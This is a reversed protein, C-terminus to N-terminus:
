DPVAKKAALHEWDHLFITEFYAAAQANHIIVGADRNYLTGETSWNQSSVLVSQGDVVIGKNHVNKQIKVGNVVDLGLTQLQELYGVTEFESMIVRVDLGAKQRDIVASILDLFGAADTVGAKPPEIYQFQMYLTKTAGAILDKAAGAYVGPDPTLVPVFTITDTVTLPDFFQAFAPSETSPLSPPPLPAGAGAPPLNHAAAVSEDHLIYQEFVGALAAQEVIVHWDRDYHRAATADAANAGPDIDPQNSNNWNGSSLWFVTHDRVAVKIHYATPFIWANVEPDTKTLAWAQTFGGDLASDLMGVTQADTQDATPNKAPHDLVLTLQKGALAGAVASEVHASTFDYLGVTLTAATAELFPALLKWGSDPSASLHITAEATVPDLAVGAPPTYDLEPKSATARDLADHASAAAAPHAGALTREDPFHPVSGLDPTLRFERAFAAPDALETRKRPSAQRVDVPVGGVETPLLQSPPLESTKHEVTVVIAPTDTLWDGTVKYGPRLSLVGPKSLQAIHGAIVSSPDTAGAM